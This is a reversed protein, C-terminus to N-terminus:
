SVSSDLGNTPATSKQVSPSSDSDTSMPDEVPPEEGPEDERSTPNRAPIYAVMAKSAGQMCYQVVEIKCGAPALRAVQRINSTRPLYLVHDMSEYSKHLQELNYPQMSHLDFIEDSRYGPGGWPPSSFLVTTDMDVRLDPHLAGPHNALADLYEFSDGHVWSVMSPDVGYIQANHQACALTSADREIAIVRQWRGSLAFAITNGGAGAFADVLITKKEDAAGMDVAIQNAIPEPTVGFWADDTLYVGEDYWSFVSYRQAFYKQIDWPVQDKGGYHHCDDTLPLREAPAMSYGAGEGDEPGRESGMGNGM